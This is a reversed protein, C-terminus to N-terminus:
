LEARFDNFITADATRRLNLLEDGAARQALM